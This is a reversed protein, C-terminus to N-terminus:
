CLGFKSIPNVSLIPLFVRPFVSDAVFYHYCLSAVLLMGEEPDEIEPELSALLSHVSMSPIDPSSILSNPLGSGLLVLNSSLLPITASRYMRPAASAFITAHPQRTTIVHAAWFAVIGVTLSYFTESPLSPHTPIRLVVYM